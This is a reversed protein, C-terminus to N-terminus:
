PARVEAALERLAAEPEGRRDRPDVLAQKKMRARSVMIKTAHAPPESKRELLRFHTNGGSDDGGREVRARRRREGADADQDM